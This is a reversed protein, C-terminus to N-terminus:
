TLCVLSHHRPNDKNREVYEFVDILIKCSQFIDFDEKIDLDKYHLVDRKLYNTIKDKSDHKSKFKISESGTLFSATLFTILNKRGDTQSSFIHDGWQIERAEIINDIVENSEEKNKECYTKYFQNKILDLDSLSLSRDNLVEFLTYADQTNGTQIVCLKVGDLFQKIKDTIAIASKLTSHKKEAAQEVEKTTVVNFTSFITEIAKLYRKEVETVRDLDPLELAIAKQDSLTFIVKSLTEELTKSYSKRDYQLHLKVSSFLEALGDIFDSKFNEDDEPYVPLKSSVCYFDLGEENDQDELSELIQESIQNSIFDDLNMDYLYEASKNLEKILGEVKTSLNSSIAQRTILRLISYRVYNILYITTFRQQGDILAHESHNEQTVTVISGAFYDNNENINSSHQSWDKILTSIQEKGWSYPRQYHPIKVQRAVEEKQNIDGTLEFFNRIVAGKLDM